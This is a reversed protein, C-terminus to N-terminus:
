CYRDPRLDARAAAIRLRRLGGVSALGAPNWVAATADDAVATFAGAMGAARVGVPPDGQARAPGVSLLFLCVSLSSYASSRPM